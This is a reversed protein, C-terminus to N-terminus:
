AINDTKRFYDSLLKIAKNVSFKYDKSRKTVVFGKNIFLFSLIGDEVHVDFRELIPPHLIIRKFTFQPVISLEIPDYDGKRKKLLLCLLIYIIFSLCYWSQM